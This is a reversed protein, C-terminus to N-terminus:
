SNGVKGLGLDDQGLTGDRRVDRRVDEGEGYGWLCVLVEVV